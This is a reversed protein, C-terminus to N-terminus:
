KSFLSIKQDKLDTKRSILLWIGLKKIQSVVIFIIRDM